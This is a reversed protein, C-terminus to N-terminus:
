ASVEWTYHGSEQFRPFSMLRVTSYKAYLWDQFTEADGITTCYRTITKM